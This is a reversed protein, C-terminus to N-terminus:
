KVSVALKMSEGRLVFCQEDNCVSFNAIINLDGSGAAVASLPISVVGVKGDMKVDGARKTLHEKDCKAHRAASVTFKSPFDKNFKLGKAPEIRLKTTVKGGARLTVPTVVVAYRGAKGGPAGVPVAASGPAGPQVAAAHAPTSASDALSQQCAMLTIIACAAVIIACAAVVFRMSTM